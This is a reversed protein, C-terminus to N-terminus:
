GLLRSIGTNPERMSRNSTRGEFDKPRSLTENLISFELSHIRIAAEGEIPCKHECIGCGICSDLDVYPKQISVVSAGEKLKNEVELWIAKDPVPCMEECVICEAEEKWAICRERDIVAKGIATTRKQELPLPPIAEVPCIENCANCSFDCYGLRPIVVPTWMGEVGAEWLAPQLAGTPCTRVCQGCRICISILGNEYGGPPQITDTRSRYFNLGSRFFLAGAAAAGFTALAERRSPDYPEWKAPMTTPTFSTSGLPCGDICEMCVTCEAPDSSFGNTPHIIGMPCEVACVGCGECTDAVRRRILSIKSLLGLLAGLPCLYRCWFRQSILNALVIAVLLGIYLAAFRMAPANFPFFMPRLFGDILVVPSQLSSVQYASEELMLIFRDLAPWFGSTLSRILLTIPDLAILSLNGFIATFLIGLLILYKIKRWNSHPATKGIRIRNFSFLDLITGLPCLWGCWARGVLLTLGITVLALLVGPVIIRSSIVNVTSTLPDLRIFLNASESRWDSAGTKVFMAFFLILAIVQVLWRLSSWRM